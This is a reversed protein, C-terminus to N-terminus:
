RPKVPEFEIGAADLAEAVEPTIEIVEMQWSGERGMWYEWDKPYINTHTSLQSEFMDAHTIAEIEVLAQRPKQPKAKVRYDSEGWIWQPNLCDIWGPNKEHVRKRQIKEGKSFAEMVDARRRLEQASKEALARNESNSM